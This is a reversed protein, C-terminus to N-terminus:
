PTYSNCKWYFYNFVPMCRFIKTGYVSMWFPERETLIRGMLYLPLSVVLLVLLMDTVGGAMILGSSTIIFVVGFFLFPVGLMMAPRTMGIFLPDIDPKQDRVM